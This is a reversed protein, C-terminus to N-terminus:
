LSAEAAEVSEALSIVSDVKTMKFLEMVRASVGSAIMRTKKNECHVYFNIITGMGASDMYPVGSLDLIVVPPLEVSRVEAQFTFINRLTMPGALRLIRTGAKTGDQMEISLAADMVM